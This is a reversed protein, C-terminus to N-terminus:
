KPTHTTEVSESKLTRIFRIHGKEIILRVEGFSGVKSIAEEIAIIDRPQLNHLDGKSQSNDAPKSNQISMSDGYFASPQKDMALCAAKPNKCRQWPQDRCTNPEEVVM